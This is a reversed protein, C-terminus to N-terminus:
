EYIRLEEMIKGIPTQLFGEVLGNQFYTDYIYTEKDPIIQSAEYPTTQIVDSLYEERCLEIANESSHNHIAEIWEDWHDLFLKMFTESNGRNKYRGEYEKKDAANPCVITVPINDKKLKELISIVTPIVIIEEPYKKHTDLLAYYYYEDWGIVFELDENAKIDEDESLNGSVQYFNSYKFPMIIFDIANRTNKCFQTKGVGSFGAIIM